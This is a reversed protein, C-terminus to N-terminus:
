DWGFFFFFCVCLFSHFDKMQEFYLFTPPPPSEPSLLQAGSHAQGAQLPCAEAAPLM